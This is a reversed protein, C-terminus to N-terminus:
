GTMKCAKIAYIEMWEGSKLVITVGALYEDGLYEMQWKKNKM